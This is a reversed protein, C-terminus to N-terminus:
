PGDFTTGPEDAASGPQASSAQMAADRLHRNFLERAALLLHVPTATMQEDHLSVLRELIVFDAESPLPNTDSPAGSTCGLLAEWARDFGLQAAADRGCATEHLSRATGIANFLRAIVDVGAHGSRLAVLSLHNELSQQRAAAVPLPLLLERTLPLRGSPNRKVRRSKSSRPMTCAIISAPAITVIGGCRCGIRFAWPGTTGLFAAAQRSTM